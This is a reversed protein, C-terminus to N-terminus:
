GTAADEGADETWLLTELEELARRMTPMNRRIYRETVNKAGHGLILGIMRPSALDDLTTAVFRRFDHITAEPVGALDRFGPYSHEVLGKKRKRRSTQGAWAREFNRPQIATGTESPILLTGASFDPADGDGHHAALVKTWQDAARKALRTPVPLPRVSERKPSGIELTQYSIATNIKVERWDETFDSRRLALAEGLRLGLTAMFHFALGYPHDGIVSLITRVQQATLAPKQARAIKPLELELTPDDRILKMAKAKGFVEGLVSAIHHVTQPSLPGKGDRRTLNSVLHQLLAHDVGNLPLSGIAPLIHLELMDLVHKDSRAANNRKLYVENYWYDTFDEVPQSGDRVNVGAERMALLEAKLAEAAKRDPARRRIPKEGPRVRVAVRYSGDPERSISGSGYASRQPKRKPRKPGEM